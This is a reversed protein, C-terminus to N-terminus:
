ALDFEFKNEGMIEEYVEKQFSSSGNPAYMPGIFGFKMILDSEVSAGASSLVGDNDTDAAAFM